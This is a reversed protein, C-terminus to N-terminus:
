SKQFLFKALDLASDLASQGLLDFALHTSKEIFIDTKEFEKSKDNLWYKHILLFQSWLAHYYKDSIFKREIVEGREVATDLITKVFDNFQLRAAALGMQEQLSSNKSLYDLFSRESLAKETWAYFLALMQERSSYKDFNEDKKLTTIVSKFLEEVASNELFEFSHYKKYFDNESISNEKCFLYVSAPRKNHTLVFDKYAKVIKTAM